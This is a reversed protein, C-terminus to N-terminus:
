LNCNKEKISVKGIVYGANEWAKTVTHTPSSHWYSYQDASNALKFGLINEIENFTLELADQQCKTLYDQLTQFKYNRPM